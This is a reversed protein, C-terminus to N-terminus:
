ALLAADDQIGFYAACMDAVVLLLVAITDGSARHAKARWGSSSSRWRASM